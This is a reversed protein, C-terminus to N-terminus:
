EQVSGVTITLAYYAGQTPAAAWAPQFPIKDPSRGLRLEAETGLWLAGM